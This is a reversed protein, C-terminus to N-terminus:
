LSEPCRFAQMERLRMPNLASASIVELKARHGDLNLLVTFREPQPPLLSREAELVDLFDALGGRYREGALVVARRPAAESDALAARREQERGFAVLANEVEELARLVAQEFQILAQAQRADAARVQQRIRGAAFVPWRVTPGLSWFRSGGDLWDAAEVSQM